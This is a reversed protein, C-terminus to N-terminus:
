EKITQQEIVEVAEEREQAATIQKSTNRNRIEDILSVTHTHRHDVQQHDGYKHPKFKAALWKRTEIKLRSRQVAENNVREVGNADTIYDDGSEDAISLMDDAMQDAQEEKARAYLIEFDNNSRLWQYFKEIGIGLSKCVDKVRDGELLMAAIKDGVEPSYLLGQDKPRGM